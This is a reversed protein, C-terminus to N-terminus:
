IKISIKRGVLEHMNISFLGSDNEIAIINGKAALVHGKVVSGDHIRMIDPKFKVIDTNYYSRLDFIEVPVMYKSYESEKLKKVADFILKMSVNPNGFFKDQKQIGRVRDTISLIKCIGQEIERVKKGDNVMAIKAGFDSGQEVLRQLLRYGQSIGVKLISDFASIYIFYSEKMCKDRRKENKCDKGDCKICMFFYDNLSCSKCKWEKDVIENCQFHKGNKSYGTCFKKDVEFFIENGLLSIKEKTDGDKLTIFPKFKEWRYSIIQM